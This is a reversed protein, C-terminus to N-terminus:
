RSILLRLLLHWAFSENAPSLLRDIGHISVIEDFLEDARHHPVAFFGGRLADKVARHILYGLLGVVVRQFDELLREFVDFRDELDLRPADAAGVVLNRHFDIGEAALGQGDAPNQLIRALTGSFGHDVLQGVLQNVGGIRAAAGDLFLFIHVAHRFRILRERMVAPLNSAFCSLFTVSATALLAPSFFAPAAPRANLSSSVRLIPIMACMSAPLVVEVSRM